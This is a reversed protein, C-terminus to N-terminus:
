LRGTLQLFRPHDGLSRFAPDRAAGEVLSEDAQFAAGLLDMAEAHSGEKALMRALHMTVEGDQDPAALADLLAEAAEAEEGLEVLCLARGLHALALQPALHIAEDFCALALRTEHRALAARANELRVHAPDSARPPRTV